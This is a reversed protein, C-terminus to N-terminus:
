RDHLTKGELYDVQEKSGLRLRLPLKTTKELKLEQKCAWGFHHTYYAPDITAVDFLVSPAASVKKPLAAQKVFVLGNTTTSANNLLAFRTNDFTKVSKKENVGTIHLKNAKLYPLFDQSYGFGVNMLVCLLLFNKKMKKVRLGSFYM